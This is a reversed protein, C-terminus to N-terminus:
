EDFLNVYQALIWRWGREGAFSLQMDKAQAGYRELNRHELRVQTGDGDAVFTVDVEVEFDPDYQWDATLQWALLLQRGPEYLKVYGWDCEKGSESKEYFRGGVRPEIVVDVAQTEGIHHDMPWWNAMSHAFIDFAKQPSVPVRVTQVVPEIQIPKIRNM